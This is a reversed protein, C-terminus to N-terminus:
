LLVSFIRWFACTLHLLRQGTLGNGGNGKDILFGLSLNAVLPVLGAKHVHELVLQLENQCSLFRDGEGGVFSDAGLGSKVKYGISCFSPYVSFLFVASPCRWEPSAQRKAGAAMRYLTDRLDRKALRSFNLDDGLPMHEAIM